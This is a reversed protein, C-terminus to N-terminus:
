CQSAQQRSDGRSPHTRRVCAVRRFGRSGNPISSEKVRKSKCSVSNCAQSCSRLVTTITVCSMPSARGRSGGRYEFVRIVKRHPRSDDVKQLIVGILRRHFGGRLGLLLSPRGDVYSHIKVAPLFHPSDREDGSVSAVMRPSGCASPIMPNRRDIPRSSILIREASPTPGRKFDFQQELASYVSIGLVDSPLMDSTFQVRQFTCDLARALAQGLTTKGVGPKGLLRPNMPVDLPDVVLWAALLQRMVEDQGVWDINLQDPHALHLTVGEIEVM